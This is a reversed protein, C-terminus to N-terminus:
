QVRLLNLSGCSQSEKRTVVLQACLHAGDRIFDETEVYRMFAGQRLERKVQTYATKFPNEKFSANEQAFLKTLERKIGIPINVEMDSSEKIFTNFIDKMVVNIDLDTRGYYLISDVEDVREIFELLESCVEKELFKAFQLRKRHSALLADLMQVANETVFKKVSEKESECEFV